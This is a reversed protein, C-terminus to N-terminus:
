KGYGYKRSVKGTSLDINWGSPMTYRYGLEDYNAGPDSVIPTVTLSAHANLSLGPIVIKATAIYTNPRTIFVGGNPDLTTTPNDGSPTQIKATFKIDLTQPAPYQSATVEITAGEDNYTVSGHISTQGYGVPLPLVGTWAYYSLPDDEIDFTITISSTKHDSKDIPLPPTPMAVV